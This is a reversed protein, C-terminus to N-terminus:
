PNLDFKHYIKFGVCYCCFVYFTHTELQKQERAVDRHLKYKETHVDSPVLSFFWYNTFPLLVYCSCNSSICNSSSNYVKTKTENNTILMILCPSVQTKWCFSFFQWPSCLIQITWLTTWKLQTTKTIVGFIVFVHCWLALATESRECM